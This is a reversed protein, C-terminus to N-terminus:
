KILKLVWSYGNRDCFDVLKNKILIKNKETAYFYSIVFEIALRENENNLFSKFALRMPKTKENSGNSNIKFVCYLQLIYIAISEFEFSANKFLNDVTNNLKEHNLLEKAFGFHIMARIPRALIWSSQFDYTYDNAISIVKDIHNSITDQLKNEFGDVIINCELLRSIEHFHSTDIKIKSANKKFNVIDINNAFGKYFRNSLLYSYAFIKKNNDAINKLYYKEIASSYYSNPNDEDVFCEYFFARGNQSKALLRLLVHSPNKRIYSGLLNSITYFVSYEDTTFKLDNLIKNVTDFDSNILALELFSLSFANEDESRLYKIEAQKALSKNNEIKSYDEWNLYNLFQSLINLTEKYPKRSPKVIGYLRGITHPSVFLKKKAIEESLFKADSFSVVNRQISIEVQRLLKDLLINQSEM